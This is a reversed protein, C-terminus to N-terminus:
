TDWAFGIFVRFEQVTKGTGNCKIIFLVETLTKNLIKVNM